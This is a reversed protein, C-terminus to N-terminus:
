SYFEGAQSPGDFIADGQEMVISMFHDLNELLDASDMKRDQNFTIMISKREEDFRLIIRTEEDDQSPM